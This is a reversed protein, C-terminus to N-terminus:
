SLNKFIKRIDRSKITGNTNTRKRKDSRKKVVTVVNQTVPLAKVVYSHVWPLKKKQSM